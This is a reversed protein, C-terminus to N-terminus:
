QEGKYFDEILNFISEVDINHEKRLEQISGQNTFRDEYGLSQINAIKGKESMLIQLYSGFCNIKQGDELVFVKKYSDLTEVLNDDVPKLFRPNIVTINIGIEKLKNAVKVATDVMNGVAVVAVESGSYITQAKKFEVKEEQYTAKPVNGRPYRIASPSDLNYAIELMEKLEESTSPSMVVMNPINILYGIDFVGQHTEGDEGVLGARDICFVVKQKTIAVDHIIQDYARQLFTSYIAVYPVFGSKSLGSAFTVAHQEAIGVDFLRKPYKKSFDSLGTGVAMAATVAVINQNKEALECLKDGFCKSYSLGSSKNSNGTNIDFIPTGHFAEPNEESYKYGLGKKTDIHLLVPRKLEELVTFVEVLELVNNGDIKGYYKFGLEEFFGGGSYVLNRIRKKTRTLVNELGSNDEFIRTIANKTNIKANNYATSMRVRSLNTALAGVNESISMNNDNLVVILDTQSKGANNLAEYAMGGTFSGDGIIAVVKNKEKKLDRGIAYGLAASISTTSHGTDFADHVSEDAKPFGSLGKYKRLNKFENKRGTLIKHVYAQHGVDFIFKDKPSNYVYHMAVTLEVVGLNSALHGGTTAVSEVLFKRIDDCLQPLEQKDLKKLDEINNVKDLVKM